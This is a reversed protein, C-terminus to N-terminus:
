HGRAKSGAAGARPRRGAAGGPGPGAAARYVKVYERASVDWSHDQRMGARQIRRWETKRGFTDLARTLAALLAGPTSERFTFGTGARAPGEHNVVTDALGGTERVVPVTGYRLSYMQNLGCPEFRSPMLFLDAGGEILHALQEGFGIRAAIRDPHREALGRWFAELGAEGTGLLVFAAELRPLEAELAVLLDFGKQYTLRSVMGVVPRALAEPGAPLRFAELLARKAATKGSLDTADFPAPLFPDAMPNWLEDDIGNLIGHLDAARRALVGEFGFGFEPTLIERAYRPSVTTIARSFFIGAKLFSIHGWFELREPDFLWSPLDIEGMWWPDFLGRFAANHITFVTPVGALAPHGGYRTQLYVPALGTQWEHAHVVAPREGRGAAWELAALVLFAFRRPNDPYDSSGVGYLGDRDFFGPCDVLVVRSREGLPEEVYGADVTRGGLAVRRVEVLPAGPAAGRHRPLVLTVAHGLRDLARPLAAAVDALGGGKAFPAAEPTIMLITLPPGGAAARSRATPRVPARARSPRSANSRQPM